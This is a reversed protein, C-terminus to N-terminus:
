PITTLLEWARDRESPDLEDIMTRLEDEAIALLDSRAHVDRPLLNHLLRDRDDPQGYLHAALLAGVSARRVDTERTGPLKTTLLVRVLQQSAIVLERPMTERADWAAQLKEAKREAARKQSFSGARSQMEYREEPTRAHYSCYQEADAVLDFSHDRMSQLGDKTLRGNQCQEGNAKIHTCRPPKPKIV